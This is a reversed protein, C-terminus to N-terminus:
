GQGDEPNLKGHLSRSCQVLWWVGSWVLVCEDTLGVAVLAAFKVGSSPCPVGSVHLTAFIFHFFKSFTVDLQNSIDIKDSVL